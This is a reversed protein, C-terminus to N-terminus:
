KLAEQVSLSEGVALRRAPKALSFFFVWLPLSVLPYLVQYRLVAEDTEFPSFYPILGTLVMILIPALILPRLPTLVKVLFVTTERAHALGPGKTGKPWYDNAAGFETHASLQSDEFWPKSTSAMRDGRNTLNHPTFQSLKRGF